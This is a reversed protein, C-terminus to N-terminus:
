APLIPLTKPSPVTPCGTWWAASIPTQLISTGPTTIVEGELEMAQLIMELAMHGNVLLEINEVKLYKQLEAQFEKHKPGMNTLWHTEWISQIENIYEDMSPLTAQTVLVKEM